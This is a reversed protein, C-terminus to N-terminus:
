QGGYNGETPIPFGAIVACRDVISVQYRKYAEITPAEGNVWQIGSPLSLSTVSSETDFEFMYECYETEDAPAALSGIVIVQMTGMKYFVNPQLASGTLTTTNQYTTDVKIKDAKNVIGVSVALDVLADVEAMTVAGDLAVQEVRYIEVDESNYLTTFEQYDKNGVCDSTKSLSGKNEFVGFRQQSHLTRFSMCGWQGTVNYWLSSEGTSPNVFLIFNDVCDKGVIQELRGVYTGNSNRVYVSLITYRRNFQSVGLITLDADTYNSLSGAELSWVKAWYGNSATTATNANVYGFDGSPMADLRAKVKNRHYHILGSRDLFKAM